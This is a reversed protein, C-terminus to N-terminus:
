KKQSLEGHSSAALTTIDFLEAKDKKSLQYKYEELTSDIVYVSKIKNM